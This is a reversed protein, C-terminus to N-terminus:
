QAKESERLRQPMEQRGMGVMTLDAESARGTLAVLVVAFDSLTALLLRLGFRGCHAANGTRVETPKRRGNIARHVASPFNRQSGTPGINRYGLTM